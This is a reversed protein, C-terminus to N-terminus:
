VSRLGAGTSRESSPFAESFLDPFHERIFKENEKSERVLEHIKEKRVSPELLLYQERLVSVFYDDPM